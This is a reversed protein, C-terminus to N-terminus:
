PAKLADSRLMEGTQVIQYEGQELRDVTLGGDTKYVGASDGIERPSSDRTTVDASRTYIFSEIRRGDEGFAWFSKAIVDDGQAHHLAYVSLAVHGYFAGLPELLSPVCARCPASRVRSAVALTFSHPVAPFM